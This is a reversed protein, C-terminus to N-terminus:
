LRYRKFHLTRGPYLGQTFRPSKSPNSINILHYWIWRVWNSRSLHLDVTSLYINVKCGRGAVNMIWRYINMHIHIDIWHVMQWNPSDVRGQKVELGWWWPARFNSRVPRATGGPRWAAEDAWGTHCRRYFSALRHNGPATGIFLVCRPLEM